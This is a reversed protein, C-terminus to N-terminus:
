IKTSTIPPFLASAIATKLTTWTRGREFCQDFPQPSKPLQVEPDAQNVLIPREATGIEAKMANLVSCAKAIFNALQQVNM